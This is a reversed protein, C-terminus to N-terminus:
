SRGLTPVLCLRAEVDWADFRGGVSPVDAYSRDRPLLYAGGLELAFLGATVGGFAALEPALGPLVRAGSGLVLRLHGRLRGTTPLRAPPASPTHESAVRTDAALAVKLAVLNVLTDCSTARVRQREEGATARLELTLLYDGEQGEIRADAFVGGADVGAAGPALWARVKTQVTRLDPCSPPAHWRLDLPSEARAPAALGLALLLVSARARLSRM